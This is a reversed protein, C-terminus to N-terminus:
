YRCSRDEVTQRDGSSITTIEHVGAHADDIWENTSTERLPPWPVLVSRVFRCEICSVGHTRIPGMVRGRQKLGLSSELRFVFWKV